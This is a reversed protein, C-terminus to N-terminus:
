RQVAPVFTNYTPINMPPIMGMDMPMGTSTIWWDEDTSTTMDLAGGPRVNFFKVLTDDWRGDISAPMLYRYLSYNGDPVQPFYVSLGHTRDYQKCQFINCYGKAKRGVVAQTIANKLDNVASATYSSTYGNLKDAYEWLDVMYDKKNAQSDLNTDLKQANTRALAMVGATTSRISASGSTLRSILLGALVDVKSRVNAMKLLDILSAAYPVNGYYDAISSLTKQAFTLTSVGTGTNELARALPPKSLIMNGISENALLYQGSDRLSYATEFDGMLCGTLYILDVKKGLVGSVSKLGSYLKGPNLDNGSEFDKSTGIGNGHADIQVVYKQAPYNTKAWSVLNVLTNPNGMDLEGMSWRNTNDKYVGSSQLVYRRTDNRAPGDLLAIVNALASKTKLAGEMYKIDSKAITLDNNSKTANIYLIITWEKATAQSVGPLTPMRPGSPQVAAPVAADVAGSTLSLQYKHDKSGSLDFSHEELFYTGDAPLTYTLLSDLTGGDDDNFALENLSSDYLTVFSDLSSNLGDTDINATITQGAAGTFSYWDRDNAPDITVGAVPSAFALPTATDPSNNPELPDGAKETVTFSVDDLYFTSPQAASTKAYFYLYMDYGRIADLQDGVLPYVVEKWGSTVSTSDVCGIDVVGTEALPDIPLSYYLRACFYDYGPETETTQINVWYRIEAAQTWNPINFRQYLKTLTNDDAGLQLANVGGHADGSALVAPTGEASWPTLTASEFGPNAITDSSAPPVWKWLRMEDLWPGTYAVGANSEDSHFYFGIWVQPAGAFMSLDFDNYVWAGSQGDWTVGYYTIGDISAGFFLYDFSPEIDYFSYFEFDTLAGDALNYPGSTMWTDLNNSYGEGTQSIGDAGGASPWASHTPSYYALDSTGWTRNYGDNSLDWLTWSSGPFSGEFGEQFPVQWEHPTQMAHLVAGSPISMVAPQGAAGSGKRLLPRPDGEAPANLGPPFKREPATLQAQAPLPGALSLLLSLVMFVAALNALHRTFTNM